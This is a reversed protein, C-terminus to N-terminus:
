LSRDKPVYHNPATNSVTNSMGFAYDGVAYYTTLEKAIKFDLDRVSIAVLLALFSGSARAARSALSLARPLTAVAWPKLKQFAYRAGSGFMRFGPKLLVPSEHLGIQFLLQQGHARYIFRRPFDIAKAKTINRM